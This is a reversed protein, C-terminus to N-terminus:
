YLAVPVPLDVHQICAHMGNRNICAHMCAHMHNISFGSTLHLAALMGRSPWGHWCALPDSPPDTRYDTNVLLM